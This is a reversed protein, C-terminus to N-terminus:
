EYEETLGRVFESQENMLVGMMPLGIGIFFNRMRIYPLVVTKPGRHRSYVGGGEKREEGGREM